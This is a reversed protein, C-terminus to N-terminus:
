ASKLEEFTFTFFLLFLKFNVCRYHEFSFLLFCVCVSAWWMCNWNSLSVPGVHAHSFFPILYDMLMISNKRNLTHCICVVVVAAVAVASGDYDHTCVFVIRTYPSRANERTSIIQRGSFTNTHFIIPLYIKM